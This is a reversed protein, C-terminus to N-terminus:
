PSPVVAQAENSYVSENNTTDLATAVYYYTQGSVVTTDTYSPTTVLSSNLKTYPGGSTTGRYVNYGGVNWSTSAMWSLSVSHSSSGSGTVCTGGLAANIVRQVVVVNCVGTGDINATCPTTGLAMNVSIQVDIVNVTGDANLDCANSSSSSSSSTSSSSAAKFSATSACYPVLNSDWQSAYTGSSSTLLHAWGNGNLTADNIFPNGSYIGSAWGAVIAVDVIVENPSAITVAAGTPTITAPQSNLTATQDLPSVTDVGSFEWIVAEGSTGIPSPTITVITAGSKSNKAYWLDMNFNITTEVSRAGPAQVYVNGGGGANDTISTITSAGGGNNSGWAVVILHGAGTAPITCTTAPFLGSGCPTVSVLAIQAWAASSSWLLGTILAAFIIRRM